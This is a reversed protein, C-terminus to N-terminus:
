GHVAFMGCWDRLRARADRGPSSMPSATSAPAVAPRGTGHIWYAADYLPDGAACSRTSRVSRAGRAASSTGSTSTATYSCPRLREAGLRRAGRAGLRAAEALLSGGGRCERDPPRGRRSGAREPYPDIRLLLLLAGGDRRSTRPMTARSSGSSSSRASSRITPSCSPRGRRGVRAAGSRTEAAHGRPRSSSSPPEVKAADEGRRRVRSAAPFSPGSDLGWSAAAAALRDPLTALWARGQEGGIRAVFARFGPNVVEHVVEGAAEEVARASSTSGASPSARTRRTSIGRSRLATPSSVRASYAAFGEDRLPKLDEGYPDLVHQRGMHRASNFFAIGVGTSVELLSSRERVAETRLGDFLASMEKPSPLGSADARLDALSRNLAEVELPPIDILRATTGTGGELAALLEDVTRLHAEEALVGAVKLERVFADLYVRSGHTVDAGAALLWLPSFGFAAISGLEVVNGATKRVALRTANPEYEDAAGPLAEVGGVLEISVRLLNKATAEYLRSRRVLRPLVLEATEHM